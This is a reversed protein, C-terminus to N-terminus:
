VTRRVASRGLFAPMHDGFGVVRRDDEHEDRQHDRRPLKTVNSPLAQDMADPNMTIPAYAAREKATAPRAPERKPERHEKAERHERTSARPPSKSHSQRKRGNKAIRATARPNAVGVVAAVVAADAAARRKM